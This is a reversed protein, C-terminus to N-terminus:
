ALRARLRRGLSEISTLSAARALLSARVAALADQDAVLAILRDVFSGPDDETVFAVEEPLEYGRRGSRTSLVPLGRGLADGLKMSAGKSLWFVPNCFLSWKAMAAGLQFDDLAGLYRVFPYRSGFAAGVSEPRGVIEFTIDGAGRAAIRDLIPTLAAINPTHHLSGVWGVLGPEPMWEVPNFSISRPLVLVDNAGLWREIVAEEESMAIVTFTDEHRMQAEAAIAGGLWIYDYLRAALNRHRAKRHVGMEYVLDGSENGHSMLVKRATPAIRGIVPVLRALEARNLFVTDIRNEEIATCLPTRWALADYHAYSFLRTRRKLKTLLRRDYDIAFQATFDSAAEVVALFERTCRQVGGPVEAAMDAPNYIFLSRM